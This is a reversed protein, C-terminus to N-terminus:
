SRVDRRLRADCKPAIVHSIYSHARNGARCRTRRDVFVGNVFDRVWKGQGEDAHDCCETRLRDVEANRDAAALGVQQRVDRRAAGQLHM